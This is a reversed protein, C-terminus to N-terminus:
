AHIFLIYKEVWRTRCTNKMQVSCKAQLSNQTREDNTTRREHVVTFMGNYHSRTHPTRILLGHVFRENAGFEM